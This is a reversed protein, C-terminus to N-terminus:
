WGNQPKGGRKPFVVWINFMMHLQPQGIFQMQWFFGCFYNSLQDYNIPFGPVGFCM